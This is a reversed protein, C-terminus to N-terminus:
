GKVSGEVMGRIFHRQAFIYFVVVPLAVLVAGAALLSEGSTYQGKFFALGLPATRMSEDTIMVLPLLFENWTWMFVLVMMTIIAPRGMPMLISWFIRFHSAGDIRAAEIVERSSSRFYARMWFTGFALSQAVQPFILSTYSDLLGLTRFDYYLPIVVAESPVMLGLLLLYFLISSGRFRMTGFAYGALSALLTSILVVSVSVIVSTELYSGFRGRNWATAFNDLEFGTGAGIQEPQVATFLILGMPYLAFLAAVLLVGYTMTREIASTRM